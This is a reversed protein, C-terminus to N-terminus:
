QPIQEVLIENGAQDFYTCTMEDMSIAWKEIGSVACMKIFTLFDTKGQQHAMLELKFEESKVVDAVVLPDYKAPVKATYDNAGHYDVHGDTVYTEYHTVGLTKIEQIYSPFDAGSKVKSHAAKIEAVTFM